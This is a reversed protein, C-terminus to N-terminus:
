IVLPFESRDNRYHYHAQRWSIRPPFALAQCGRDGERRLWASVQLIRVNTVTGTTDVEGVLIV